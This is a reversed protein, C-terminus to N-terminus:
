ERSMLFLDSGKKTKMVVFIKEQDSSISWENPSSKVGRKFTDVKAISKGELDMSFLSSEKSGALLYFIRNGRSIWSRLKSDAILLYEKNEKGVRSSTSTRILKNDGFGPRGIIIQDDELVQYYPTLGLKAIKLERNDAGLMILDWQEGDFSAWYKKEGDRSWSGRGIKGEGDISTIVGTKLNILIIGSSEGNVQTAMLQQSDPSWEIDGILGLTGSFLLKNADGNISHVFLRDPGYDISVYALLQGDPSIKPSINNKTSLELPLATYDGNIDKNKQIISNNYQLESYIFNGSAASYDLDIIEHFSNLIHTVALTDLSLKWIGPASGEHSVFYLIEDNKGWVVQNLKSKSQFVMQHKGTKLDTVMLSWSSTPTILRISAIKTGSRNIRPFLFYSESQSLDDGALKIEDEKIDLVVLNIVREDKDYETTVISNGDPMFDISAITSFPCNGLKREIMSRLEIILLQCGRKYNVRIALKEGDGSFSIGKSPRANPAGDFSKLKKKNGSNIEHLILDDSSSDSREFYAIFKGDPSFRSFRQERTDATINKIKPARVYDGDDELTHTVLITTLIIISSVIAGLIRKYSVVKSKKKTQESDAEYKCWKVEKILIYGKKSVTQIFEQKKATDGFAKRLDSIAKSLVMDSIVVDGWVTQMLEDKTVTEGQKEALVILVALVKPTIHSQNGLKVILNKSPCVAFTGISFDGNHNTGKKSM